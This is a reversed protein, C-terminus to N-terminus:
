SVNRFIHSHTQRFMNLTYQIHSCTSFVQVKSLLKRLSQRALMKMVANINPQKDIHTYEHAAVALVHTHIREVPQAVYILATIAAGAAASSLCPSSCVEDTVWELDSWWWVSGIM